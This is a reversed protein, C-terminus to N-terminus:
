PIYTCYFYFLKKDYLFVIGKELLGVITKYEPLDLYEQYNALKTSLILRCEKEVVAPLGSDAEFLSFSIEQAAQEVHKRSFVFCIAPLMAQSKLHRLLDGLVFQRKIHTNNKYLYDLVDKMKYYNPENFVGASTAIPIPVGRLTEIKKEYPTKASKKLVGENVSLWMYHTLPVIRTYTPALYMKKEM